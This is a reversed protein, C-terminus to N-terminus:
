NRSLMRQYLSAFRQGHAEWTLEKELVFRRGARGMQTRIDLDSLLRSIASRLMEPDGPNALVGTKGDEVVEPVGGVPTVVVPTECAMAELVTVPLGESFSPLALVDAANLWLPIEEHPRPGAFIVKGGLGAKAALSAARGWM